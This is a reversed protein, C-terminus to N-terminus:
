TRLLQPSKRGSPADPRFGRRRRVAEPPCRRHSRRRRGLYRNRPATSSGPLAPAAASEQPKSEAAASPSSTETKPATQLTAAPTAAPAAPAPASPPTSNRKLVSRLSGSAPAEDSALMAAPDQHATLAVPAQGSPASARISAGTTYASTVAQGASRFQDVLQPNASAADTRVSKAASWFRTTDQAQVLAAVVCGTLVVCVTGAILRFRSM